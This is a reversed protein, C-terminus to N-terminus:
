LEAAGQGRFTTHVTESIVLISWELTLIHKNEQLKAKFYFIYFMHALDLAGRCSIRPLHGASAIVM